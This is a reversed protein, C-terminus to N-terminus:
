VRHVTSTASGLDPHKQGKFFGPSFARLQAFLTETLDTSTLPLKIDDTM